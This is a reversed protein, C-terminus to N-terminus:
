QAEHTRHTAEMQSPKFIEPQQLTPQKTAVDTVSLDAATPQRNRRDPNGLPYDNLITLMPITHHTGTNGVGVEKEVGFHAPREACAM